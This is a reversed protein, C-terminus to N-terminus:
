LLNVTCSSKIDIMLEACISASITSLLLLRKISDDKYKYENRYRTHDPNELFGMKLLRANIENFKKITYDFKKITYDLEHADGLDAGSYENVCWKTNHWEGGVDQISWSSVITIKKPRGRRSRSMSERAGGERIELILKYQDSSSNKFDDINEQNLNVGMEARGLAMDEITKGTQQQIDM